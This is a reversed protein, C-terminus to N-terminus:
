INSLVNSITTALFRLNQGSIMTTFIFFSLLYGEVLETTHNRLETNDLISTASRIWKFAALVNSSETMAPTSRYAELCDLSITTALKSFDNLRQKSTRSIERSQM